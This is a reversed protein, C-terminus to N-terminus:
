HLIPGDLNGGFDNYRFEPKQTAFFNSADLADNRFYDYATGHFNNTGSKTAINIYSGASRGYEAGYDSTQVNFEEITDLSGTLLRAGREFGNAMYPQDVRSADIGDISFQNHVTHLGNFSLDSIFNSRLVAGPTLLSFRAYDRGNIPLDAIQQTEMTTGTTPGSKDVTPAQATVVVEQTVAGVSMVINLEVTSAVNLVVNKQVQRQFGSHEAVVDYTGIPLNTLTYHGQSDTSIKRTEGTAQNTATIVSDAIAARSADLVQGSIQGSTQAQAPLAALAIVGVVLLLAVLRRVKEIKM